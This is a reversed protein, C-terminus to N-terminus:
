GGVRSKVKKRINSVISKIKLKETTTFSFTYAFIVFLLICVLYTMFFRFTFHTFTTILYGAIVSVVVPPLSKLIVQNIYKGQNFGEVKRLLFIRLYMCLAEIAVMIVAVIWLHFGHHLLLWAAPLILLKPTCTVMTYVGINGMARNALGLGSSLMDVIQMSMFMCAFLNVFQPVDGLWLHLLTNLEFMSPIGVMALLLFSLKSEIQALFWMHDRNGSGEAAMLQPAVANAFSSSIVSVMGSIQSGIGYAANITASMVRNLVIALGQTRLAISASSYVMWGTYSFLERMYSICFLRLQPFICEAYKCHSYLAYALLNFLQISFMIWGYGMLKDHTIHPLFLVLVVKLVGDLVEIASTYVINEHSVLLARYPAALFSMYVMLVVLQYIDKAEAIRGEPINLFGDFLYLTLSELILTIFLGLVIHLLLSNSFVGKLKEIEGRGQYISLFRQTSGILSNTLFSLMSVVGAVLSYIGYDEVGLIQLVLRTSYLSLLLNLITRIYQALTNVIIRDSAKM